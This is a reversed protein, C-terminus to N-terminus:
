AQKFLLYKTRARTCYVRIGLVLQSSRRGAECTKHIIVRQQDHGVGALFTWFSSM